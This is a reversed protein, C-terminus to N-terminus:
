IYIYMYKKKSEPVVPDKINNKLFYNTTTLGQPLKESVELRFNGPDLPDIPGTISEYM